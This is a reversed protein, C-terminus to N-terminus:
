APPGTSSSNNSAGNWIWDPSDGDSYNQLSSTKTVMFEDFWATDGSNVLLNYGGIQTVYLDISAVFSGSIKTWASAPVAVTSSSAGTYSGDSVKSGDMYPVLNGAKTSYVWFSWSVKEGTNVRM